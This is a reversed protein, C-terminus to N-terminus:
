SPSSLMSSNSRKPSPSRPLPPLITVDVPGPGASHRLQSTGKGEEPAMMRGNVSSSNRSWRSNLLPVPPMLAPSFPFPSDPVNSISESPTISKRLRRPSNFTSEPPTPSSFHATSPTTPPLPFDMMGLGSITLSRPSPPNPVPSMAESREALAPANRAVPTPPNNALGNPHRLQGDVSRSAAYEEEVNFQSLYTGSGGSSYAPPAATSDDLSRRSRTSQSRQLRDSAAGNPPNNKSGSRVLVPPPARTTTIPLAIATGRTVSPATTVVTSAPRAEETRTAYTESMQPAAKSAMGDEEEGPLRQGQRARYIAWRAKLPNCYRFLLYVAVVAAVAGLLSPVIIAAKALPHNSASVTESASIATTSAAASGTSGSALPVLSTSGTSISSSFTSGTTLIGQSTTPAIETSTPPYPSASTSTGAQGTTPSPIFPNDITRSQATISRQDQPATTTVPEFPNPTNGDGEEDGSDDVGGDEDQTDDDSSTQDQPLFNNQPLGSETRLKSLSVSHGPLSSITLAADVANPPPSSPLSPITPPMEGQRQVFKPKHFGHSNESREAKRQAIQFRDFRGKLENAPM